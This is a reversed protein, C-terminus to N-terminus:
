AERRPGCRGTPGSRRGRARRSRRPRRSRRGRRSGAPRWSAARPAPRRGASRRVHQRALQACQAAGASPGACRRGPRGAPQAALQLLHHGDSTPTSRLASRAPRPRRRARCAPRRRDGLDDVRLRPLRGVEDGDARRQGGGGRQALLGAARVPALVEGLAVVLPEGAVEVDSICSPSVSSTKAASGRGRSWRSTVPGRSSSSRGLAARRARRRGAEVRAHHVVAITGPARRPGAWPPAVDGADGRDGGAGAALRHKAARSGPTTAPSPTAARTKRSTRPSSTSILSRTGSPVRTRRPSTTMRTAPGVRPRSVASRVARLKAQWREPTAVAVAASPPRGRPCRAGAHEVGALRQGAPARQLLVGHAAAAADVVPEAQGVPRHDLVVVHDGRAAHHRRVLGHARGVGLQRDLHLDGVEVLQPLQEAGAAVSIRSSLM